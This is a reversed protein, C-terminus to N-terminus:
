PEAEAPSVDEAPVPPPDFEYHCKSCREVPDDLERARIDYSCRPCLEKCWRASM